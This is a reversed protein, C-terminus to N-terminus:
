PRNLIVPIVAKKDKQGNEAVLTIGKNKPPINFNIDMVGDHDTQLTQRYLRRDGNMVQLEIPKAAFPIKDTNSFLLRANMKRDTGVAFVNFRSNVLWNNEGASSIYFRRYFFSEDGWNRMWSTYARLTYTGPPFENDNLAINGWCLGPQARFRYQKIVKNSDNAIDIYLISSKASPTLYSAKLLYAKFWLTDGIAYYPKDFQLYLKESLNTKYRGSRLLMDSTATDVKQAYTVVGSFLIFIFSVFVAKM